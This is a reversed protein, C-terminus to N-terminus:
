KPGGSLGPILKSQVKPEDITGKVEVGYFADKMQNIVFEVPKFLFFGGLLQTDSKLRLDLNGEFDVTGRGLVESSESAFILSHLHVVTGKIEFTSVITKFKEGKAMKLVDLTFLTSVVPVDILNADFMQMSGSGALRKSDGAVGSFNLTLQGIGTITKGAYKPSKGALDALAIGYVSIDGKMEGTDTNVEARGSIAGGYVIGIIKEIKISNESFIFSASLNKIDHGAWILNRAEFRGSLYDRHNAVNGAIWLNGSGRSFNAEVSSLEEFQLFGSIGTGNEKQKIELDGSIKGKLGAKKVKESISIPLVPIGEAFIELSGAKIHWETDNTIKGDIVLSGHEAPVEANTINLQKTGKRIVGNLGAKALKLPKETESIKVEANTLSLDVTASIADKEGAITVTGNVMAYNVYKSIEAAIDDPFNKLGQEDVLFNDFVMKISCESSSGGIWGCKGSLVVAGNGARVRVSDLTIEPIDNEITGEVRGSVGSYNHNLEAVHLEGKEVNLSFTYKGKGGSETIKVDGNLVGGKLVDKVKASFKEPIAGKLSEDVPMDHVKLSIDMDGNELLAWGRGDVHFSYLDTLFVRTSNVGFTGRVNKIPYKFNEYEVSMTDPNIKFDFEIPVEGKEKFVAGLAAARGGLGLKRVIKPAEGPLANIFEDSVQAGEIGINIKFSGKYDFGDVEGWIHAKTSDREGTVGDLFVKNGSVKIQGHVNDMRYPFLWHKASAGKPNVIVDGDVLSIKAKGSPSISDLVDLFQKSVVQRLRNDFTVEEFVITSHPSNADGEVRISVRGLLDSSGVLNIDLINEAARVYGSKLFIQIRQGAEVIDSITIAVTSDKVEIDPLTLKASPGGGTGGKVFADGVSLEAKEFLISERGAGRRVRVVPCKVFEAGNRKLVFENILVDDGDRSASSFGADSGFSEKLKSRVVMSVTVSWHSFAYYVLYTGAIVLCAVAYPRIRAVSM